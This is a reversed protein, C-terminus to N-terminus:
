PIELFVLRDFNNGGSTQSLVQLRIIEGSDLNDVYDKLDGASKVPKDDVEYIIDNPRLGEKFAASGREVNQVLVGSDLDLRDLQRDSLDQVQIGMSRVNDNKAVLPKQEATEAEDRGELTVNIKIEKGYRWILLSVEDGPNYSSIKAQLQNPKNVEVGNVALIVDGAKIGAKDAAKNELIRDIFVGKPQDLGVGKARVKTMPQIGVGIYGRRIEGFNIFDDVVKKSLNIPVAFGYGIYSGTSSAIATNVGIVEGRTNVLAGGSNGPNIAADTQIFNEVSYGETDRIINIDRGLASVIGATVTFNLELPSGIALVWEGIELNDSDGLVAPKLDTAEIQILAIETLPDTGIVKAEFERNDTLIVNLEDVDQIVHHNTLIYGDKSIIIGSGLGQQKYERSNDQNEDEMGFERFFRHWPSNPIKVNKKTYVTVISPKVKKVVDVFFANPNYNGATLTEQTISPESNSETYITEKNSQDAYSKNDFNFGSTLVVGFIVGIAIFGLFMPWSSKFSSM